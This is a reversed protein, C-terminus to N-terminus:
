VTSESVQARVEFGKTRRTRLRPDRSPDLGPPVGCRRRHPPSPSADAWQRHEDMAVTRCRLPERTRGDEVREDVVAAGGSLAEAGDAYGSVFFDRISASAFRVPAPADNPRM